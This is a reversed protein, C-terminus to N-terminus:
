FFSSSFCFHHISFDSDNGKQKAEEIVANTVELCVLMKKIAGTNTNIQIGCNDWSEAISEPAIKNIIEILEATKIM